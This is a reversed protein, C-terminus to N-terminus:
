CSGPTAPASASAATPSSTTRPPSAPEGQLLDDRLEKARRSRATRRQRGQGLSHEGRRSHPRRAARRGASLRAHALLEGTYEGPSRVDVLPKGARHTSSCRTASPASRTDDRDEATTRRAPSIQARPRAVMARGEAEWTTRGGDMILCTQTASCSSCGSPTAPGGTTRTATSSSRPTTPSAANRRACSPSDSATSTTASSPTTASRHALRDEGRRAHPRHRLAARGRGIRRRRHRPARPARRAM